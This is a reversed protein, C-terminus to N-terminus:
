TLILRGSKVPEAHGKLILELNEGIDTVTGSAIEQPKKCPTDSIIKVKRGIVLSHERYSNLLLDFGGSLLLEYNKDLSLLLQTLVKEQDLVSDDRIFDRLSSVEPVFPDSQIKPIKEVNLGIGLIATLVTQEVSQTHVLFGAVKAGEIIIDNVWKIRPRGKLPEFADLADILTVAALIPFGSHFNKISRHPSLFVSIHINGELAKWPRQRQGHFKRGSGAICLTGDPLRVNKRSLEVLHDYQSSPAHKVVLAHTWIGHTECVRTYVTKNQYLRKLLHSLNSDACSSDYISWREPSPLIEEAYERDDSYINMSGSTGEPEILTCVCLSKKLTSFV